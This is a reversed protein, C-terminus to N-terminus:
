PMAGLMSWRAKSASRGFVIQSAKPDTLGDQTVAYLATLAGLESTAHPHGCVSAIVDLKARITSDM